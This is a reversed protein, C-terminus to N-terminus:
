VPFTFANIHIAAGERSVYLHQGVFSGGKSLGEMDGDVYVQSNPLERSAKGAFAFVTGIGGDIDILADSRTAGTRYSLAHFEEKLDSLKKGLARLMAARQHFTQARLAPGGKGRAHDLVAGFDIGASSAMAIVDGTTADRMAIGDGSGSQWQGCVYSQLNM